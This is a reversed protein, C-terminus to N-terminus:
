LVKQYLEIGKVFVGTAIIALFMGMLQELALLGRRGCLKQLYPALALVTIVGTWAILIAGTIKLPNAEEKAFLIIISIVGAGSILPTAIPVIFPEQKEQTPADGSAKPFIMDLSILFLLIGGTLTLAYDQVHLVTLFAEGLYQFFLVILLSIFGERILIRRQNAFDYDKLLTLLMPANGIANSVIFFTLALQFISM